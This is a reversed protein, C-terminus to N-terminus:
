CQPLFLHFTQKYVRYSSCVVTEYNTFFDMDCEMEVSYSGIDFICYTQLNWTMGTLVTLFVSITDGCHTVYLTALLSDTLRPPLSSYNKKIHLGKWHWLILFTCGQHDKGEDEDMCHRNGPTPQCSAILLCRINPFFFRSWLPPSSSSSSIHRDHDGWRRPVENGYACMRPWTFLFLVSAVSAQLICIEKVSHLSIMFTLRRFISSSVM